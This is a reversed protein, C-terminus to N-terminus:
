NVDDGKLFTGTGANTYFVGNVTDYMGIENDSKSYSPVFDRVMGSEDWMKCYYLKFSGKYVNAGSRNGFLPLTATETFDSTLSTTITYDNVSVVDKSIVLDFVDTNNWQPSNTDYHRTGNWFFNFTNNYTSDSASIGYKLNCIAVSTTSVFGGAGITTVLNVTPIINTDIYQTGNSQIYEVAQYTSPLAMKAKLATVIKDEIKIKWTEDRGFDPVKGIFKTKSPFTITPTVIPSTEIMIEATWHEDQPYTFALNSVNSLYYMTNNALTIESPSSQTVVASKDEKDSLLTDIQSKQYLNDAKFDVLSNIQALEQTGSDKLFIFGEQVDTVTAKDNDTYDNSSLVKSGDPQVATDAKGLSTQVDSALDAKPIGGSPKSYKNPLEELIGDVGNVVANFDASTIRDGSHKESINLSM